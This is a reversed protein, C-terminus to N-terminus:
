YLYPDGGMMNKVGFELFLDRNELEFERKKLRGNRKEM